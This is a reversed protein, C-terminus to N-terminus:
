SKTGKVKMEFAVIFMPVTCCVYFILLFSNLRKSLEHSKTLFYLWQRRFFLLTIYYIFLPQILGYTFYLNFSPLKGNQPMSDNIFCAKNCLRGWFLLLEYHQGWNLDFKHDGWSSGNLKWELQRDFLYFYLLLLMVYLLHRLIHQCLDVIM